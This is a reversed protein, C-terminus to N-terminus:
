RVRRRAVGVCRDVPGDIKVDAGDWDKTKGDDIKDMYRVGKDMGSISIKSADPVAIYTHLLTQFIFDADGENTIHVDTSLEHETLTVVYALKYKHDFDSPPAPATFQVSVGEDRDM